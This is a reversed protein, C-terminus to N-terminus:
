RKAGSLGLTEAMRVLDALSRAGMKRMVHGRHIKVTIESLGIEGAVQKNMLGSTVLAMVEKERSTLTEYLQQVGAVAQDAQRRAKDQEIAAAVADLIDQDRFPKTLFDVAGAKMARVTMPIDGYGTMFIVPMHMGSRVLQSQFDLGSVGPLRIDLVLCRPVDPLAAALFEAASGFLEVKLGISRFLSSLAERLGADDDVVIVLPDASAPRPSRPPPTM